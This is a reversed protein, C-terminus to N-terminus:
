GPRAVQFLIKIAGIVAAPTVFVAFYSVIHDLWTGLPNIINDLPKFTATGVVILAIAALLLPKVEAEKINLFGVFFGVIVLVLILGGNQPAFIGGIVAVLLAVLFAPFGITPLLKWKGKEEKKEAM